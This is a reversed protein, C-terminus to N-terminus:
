EIILNLWQDVEVGRGAPVLTTSSYEAIIAPGRLKSGASLDDRQYVPTRTPRQSFYVSETHSPKAEKRGASAQRLRPKDTIGSARVRLSVIETPRSSDAYGYRQRHSSHFAAEFKKGWKVDIEFSQGEYRMAVSRTLRVREKGFGERLLDGLAEREIGAFAREIAREDLRSLKMMVTQSYDKVVDGLLVGLASLTGPSRPVFVRPIRLSAALECVHLGGAGGFSVLTFRRPDQGREVSVARLAREM